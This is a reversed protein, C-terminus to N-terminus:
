ARGGEAIEHHDVPQYSRRQLLASVEDYSYPELNPHTDVGVDLRTSAGARLSGHSHGHLMWSGHHAGNWTLLPYHCLVIKRGGPMREEHYDRVWEFREVLEGRIVKDHNGRILFIRGKLQGLLSEVRAASGFCFDGLHYVLAGCSVKANWRRILQDDMEEVTRFPRKAYEIVARHGFHHDSTFFENGNM